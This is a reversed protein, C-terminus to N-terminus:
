GNRHRRHGGNRISAPTLVIMNQCPAHNRCWWVDSKLVCPLKTTSPSRTVSNLSGFQGCPSPTYRNSFVVCPRMNSVISSSHGHLPSRASSRVRTCHVFTWTHTR